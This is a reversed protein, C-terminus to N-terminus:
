RRDGDKPKRLDLGGLAITFMEIKQLMEEPTQRVTEKEEFFDMPGIRKHRPLFLNIIAAPALGARFEERRKRADWRQVLRGYEAL